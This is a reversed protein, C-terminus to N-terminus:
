HKSNPLLDKQAVTNFQSNTIPSQHYPVPSQHNPFCSINIKRRVGTRANAFRAPLMLM